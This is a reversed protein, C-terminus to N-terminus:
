IEEFELLQRAAFGESNMSTPSDNGCFRKPDAAVTEPTTELIPVPDDRAWRTPLPEGKPNLTARLLATPSLVRTKCSLVPRAWATM